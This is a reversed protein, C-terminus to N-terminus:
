ALRQSFFSFEGFVYNVLFQVDASCKNDKKTFKAKNGYPTVSLSKKEVSAIVETTIDAAAIDVRGTYSVM